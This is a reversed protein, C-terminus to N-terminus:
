SLTYGVLSGDVSSRLHPRLGPQTQESGDLWVKPYMRGDVSRSCGDMWVGCTHAFGQNLRSLVQLGAEQHQACAPHPADFPSLPSESKNSPFVTCPLRAPPYLPIIHYRDHHMSCQSQTPILIAWFGLGSGWGMGAAAATAQSIRLAMIDM